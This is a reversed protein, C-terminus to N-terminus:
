MVLFREHTEHGESDTTTVTRSGFDLSMDMVSDGVRAEESRWVQPRGVLFLTSGWSAFQKGIVVDLDFNLMDVDEFFKAPIVDPDIRVAYRGDADTKVPRTDWTPVVQGNKVDETSMLEVSVRAGRVRHGGRRITGTLFLDHTKPGATVVSRSPAASSAAGEASACGAAACLVASILAVTRATRRHGGLM